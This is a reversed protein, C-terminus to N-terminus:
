ERKGCCAKFFSKMSNVGEYSSVRQYNNRARIIIAIIVIIAIILIIWGWM